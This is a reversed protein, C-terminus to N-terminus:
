EDAEVATGVHNAENSDDDAKEMIALLEDIVSPSEPANRLTQVRDMMFEELIIGIARLGAPTLLGNLAKERTSKVRVMALHKISLMLDLQCDSLSKVWEIDRDSADGWEGKKRKRRKRSKVEVAAEAVVKEVGSSTGERCVM